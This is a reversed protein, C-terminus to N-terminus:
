RWPPHTRACSTGSSFHRAGVEPVVSQRVSEWEKGQPHPGRLRFLHLFAPDPQIAEPAPPGDCVTLSFSRVM